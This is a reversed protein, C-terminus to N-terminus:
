IGCRMVCPYACLRRRLPVVRRGSPLDEYDCGENEERLFGNGEEHCKDSGAIIGYKNVVKNIVTERM